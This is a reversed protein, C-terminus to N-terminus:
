HLFKSKLLILAKSLTRIHAPCSTRRIYPSCSQKHNGHINSDQNKKMIVEICKLSFESMRSWHPLRHRMRSQQYTQSINILPRSSKRIILQLEYIRGTIELSLTPLLVAGAWFGKRKKELSSTSPILFMHTQTNSHKVTIITSCLSPKVLLQFCSLGQFLNM